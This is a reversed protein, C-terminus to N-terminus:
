GSTNPPSPHSRWRVVWALIPRIRALLAVVAVLVPIWVEANGQIWAAATPELTPTWAVITRGEQDVALIREVSWQLGAPPDDLVPVTASTGPM